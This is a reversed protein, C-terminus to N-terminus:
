SRRSRASGAGGAERGFSDPHLAVAAAATGPTPAPSLPPPWPHPAPSASPPPAPAPAAAATRPTTRQTITSPTPLPHIHVNPTYIPFFDLRAQSAHVTPLFSPVTSSQASLSKPKAKKQGTREAGRAKATGVNAKVIPDYAFFTMCLYTRVRMCDRGSGGLGMKVGGDCPGKARNGGRARAGTAGAGAM